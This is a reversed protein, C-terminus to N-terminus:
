GCPKELFQISHFSRKVPLHGCHQPSLIAALLYQSNSHLYKKVAPLKWVTGLFIFKLICNSSLKITITQCLFNYIFKLVAMSCFCSCKFCVFITIYKSAYYRQLKKLVVSMQLHIESDKLMSYHRDCLLFKLTQYIQQVSKPLFSYSTRTRFEPTTYILIYILIYIKHQHLLM